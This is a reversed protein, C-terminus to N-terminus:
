ALHMVLRCSLFALVSMILPAGSKERRGGTVRRICWFHAGPASGNERDDVWRVASKWSRLGLFLYGTPKM